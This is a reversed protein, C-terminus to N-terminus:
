ERHRHRHLTNGCACVYDKDGDGVDRVTEFDDASAYGRGCRCLVAEFTSNCEPCEYETLHSTRKHDHVTFEDMPIEPQHGCHPCEYNNNGIKEQIAQIISGIM